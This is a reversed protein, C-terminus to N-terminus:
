LLILHETFLRERRGPTQIFVLRPRARVRQLAEPGGNEARRRPDTPRHGQRQGLRPRVDDDVATGLVLGGFADGGLHAAQAAPRVHQHGVEGIPGGAVPEHVLGPGDPVPEVGPELDGPGVRQGPAAALSGNSALSSRSQATSTTAVIRRQRAIPWLIFACAAARDHGIPQSWASVPISPSEPSSNAAVLPATM